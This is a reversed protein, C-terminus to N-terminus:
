HEFAKVGAEVSIDLHNEAPVIPCSYRGGYACYPNYAKNFDISVEKGLPGHLDIYRGGGYTSEGNTLDTFPLFLHDAYEPKKVLDRNQYVTLECKRGNLEFRLKGIGKYVPRRDTTTPMGFEDGERAKFRALVRYSPDPVFRELETFVRRDEELLPSHSSDMYQANIGQWYEEIEAIWSSDVTQAQVRAPVFLVCAFFMATWWGRRGEFPYTRM